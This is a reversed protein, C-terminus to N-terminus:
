DNSVSRIIYYLLHRVADREHGNRPYSDRLVDKLEVNSREGKDPFMEKAHVAMQLVVDAVLVTNAQGLLYGIVEASPPRTGIQAAAKHPYIKFDETVWVKHAVLLDLLHVADEPWSLRGTELKPPMTEIDIIAWGTTKGPDLGLLRTSPFKAVQEPTLVLQIDSPNPIYIEM